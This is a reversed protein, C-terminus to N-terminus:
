VSLLSSAINTPEILSRELSLPYIHRDLRPDAAKVEIRAPMVVECYVECESLREGKTWERMVEERM